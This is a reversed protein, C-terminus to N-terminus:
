WLERRAEKVGGLGLARRAVNRWYTQGDEEGPAGYIWLLPWYVSAPLSVDTKGAERRRYYWGWTRGVDSWYKAAIAERGKGTWPFSPKDDLRDCFVGM